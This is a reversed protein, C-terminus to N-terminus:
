LQPPINVEQLLAVNKTDVNEEQRRPRKMNKNMKDLRDCIQVLNKNKWKFLLDIYKKRIFSYNNYLFILAYQTDNESANENLPIARDPNNFLEM